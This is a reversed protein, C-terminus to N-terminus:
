ATRHVTYRRVVLTIALFQSKNCFLLYKAFISKKLKMAPLNTKTSHLFKFM